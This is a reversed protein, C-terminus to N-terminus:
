MEVLIVRQQFFGVGSSLCCSHLKRNRAAEVGPSGRGLSVEPSLHESSRSM